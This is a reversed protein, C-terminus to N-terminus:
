ARRGLRTGFRVLTEYGAATAMLLDPDVVVRGAEIVHVVTSGGFEFLGKEAGRAVPQGPTYTQVIGGVGIAGIEVIATVGFSETEFVSVERVNELIM